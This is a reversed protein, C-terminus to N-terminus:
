DTHADLCRRAEALLIPVDDQIIQWVIAHDLMDYGRAIINRFSIMRRTPGLRECQQPDIRELRRIAEGIIEFQREVASRLMLDKRYDQIRKGVVFADIAEAANMVDLILKAVEPQM